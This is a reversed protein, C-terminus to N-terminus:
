WGMRRRLVTLLVLLTAGLVLLAIEAALIQLSTHQQADSMETRVLGWCRLNLALLVLQPLILTWFVYHPKRIFAPVISRKEANM